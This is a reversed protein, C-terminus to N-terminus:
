QVWLEAIVQDPAGLPGAEGDIPGPLKTPKVFAVSDSEGDRDIQSALKYPAHPQNM